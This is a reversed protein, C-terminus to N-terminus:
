FIVHARVDACLVAQFEWGADESVEEDIEGRMVYISCAAWPALSPIQVWVGYHCWFRLRIHRGIGDCKCIYSDDKYNTLQRGFLYAVM